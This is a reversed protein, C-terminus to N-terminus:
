EERLGAHEGFAYPLRAYAETNKELADLTTYEDAAHATDTGFGFDVTPVGAERLKKADGGGTANRCRVGGESVTEAVSVASEVVPEDLSEYTGVSWSTEAVSVGEVGEVFEQIEGLVERTNVGPTLRVDIEARATAPVSNVSEGGEFVGLNTTPFEFMRRAEQDGIDESYYAASEEVIGEVEPPYSLRREALAERLSEIAEYLREVANVGLNPRSGHASEGTAELTLWISGKDAVSVSARGDTCTTEGVVCGDGDVLGADLLSPLGADGATEEDSVLAFLINVPPQGEFEYFCEAVALMSAVAGKMDTAGRGYFRDGLREGFPEKSWGEGVPVTDLHGSYVLVTESSGEVTAVLNPKSPEVAHRRTEADISRFFDEIYDFARQTEGPPNTTDFELLDLLLEATREPDLRQLLRDPPEM